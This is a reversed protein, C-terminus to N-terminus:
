RIVALRRIRSEGAAALKVVYVGSALPRGDDDRLDWAWERRAEGGAGAAFSRVRRGRLDYVDLRVAGAGAAPASFALRVDRSAPNPSPPDLALARSPGGEVGTPAGRVQLVGASWTASPDGENFLLRSFTLPLDTGVPVGPLVTVQVTSLRVGPGPVASAGATAAAVFDANANVFPAGWTWLFGDNLVQAGQVVSAGLVLRYEIAQIGLGSPSPLADIPIEVTGGPAVTVVPLTVHLDAALVVAPAPVLCAFALRVAQKMMGHRIM